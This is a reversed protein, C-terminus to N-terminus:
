RQISRYCASCNKMKEEKTPNSVTQQITNILVQSRKKRRRRKKGLKSERGSGEGGGNRRETKKYVFIKVNLIDGAGAEL